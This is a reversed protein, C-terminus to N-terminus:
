FEGKGILNSGGQSRKTEFLRALRDVLAIWLIAMGFFVICQPIWEPMPVFTDTVGGRKFRRWGDMGVFYLIFTSTLLGAFAALIDAIRNGLRGLSGLLFTSRIHADSALGYGLTGFIIIQVAYGVVVDVMFTSSHFFLRMSIELIIFLFLFALAAASVCAGVVNLSSSFKHLFPM